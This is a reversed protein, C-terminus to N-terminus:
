ITARISVSGHGASCSLQVEIETAPAATAGPCASLRTRSSPVDSMPWPHGNVLMDRCQDALADHCAQRAKAAPMEELEEPPAERCGALAEARAEDVERDLRIVKM